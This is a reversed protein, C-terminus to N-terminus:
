ANLGTQARVQRLLDNGNVRYIFALKDIMLKEQGDLLVELRTIEM